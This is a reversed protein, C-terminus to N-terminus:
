RRRHDYSVMRELCQFLRRLHDLQERPSRHLHAQRIRDAFKTHHLREPTSFVMMQLVDRLWHWDLTPASLLRNTRDVTVIAANHAQLRGLIHALGLRVHREVQVRQPFVKCFDDERAARQELLRYIVHRDPMRLTMGSWNGERMAQHELSAAQIANIIMGYMRLEGVVEYLPLRRVFFEETTNTFGYLTAGIVMYADGPSARLARPKDSSTTLAPLRRTCPPPSHLPAALAPPCCSLSRLPCRTFWNNAQEASSSNFHWKGEETRLELWIYPNCHTGCVIDSQKHKCKFRFVDVPLAIGDFFQKNEESSNNLMSWLRCNQDHWLVQPLSQRTPFLGRWFLLVGNVAESGYFTARGLIVGCSAVCLEENHTRRRGFQARVKTNGDASKGECEISPDEHEHVDAAADDNPEYVLVNAEADLELNRLTIDTTSTKDQAASSSPTSTCLRELRSKLQFMAKNELKKFDELARHGATSCTAFGTEANQNCEVVACKNELAVHVMCYRAGKSNRLPEKCDHVACCPHGLTVGDTVVSHVARISGGADKSVWCCLDCAHNWLEQGPGALRANRAHLALALRDAQNTADHSVELVTGHEHHDLLLSYLLFGDWVWETTMDMNTAWQIPLLVDLESRRMSTNYFRACNTGSTWAVTMMNVFMECVDSAIYFHQALLIYSPPEAYYTRKTAEDHVFFNPHYRTRCQRCYLSTTRGPIPGLNRTFVTVPHSLPEVLSRERLRDGDMGYFQGCLPQRCTQFPPRFSFFVVDHPLGYELFLHILAEMRHEVESAKMGEHLRWAVERVADWMLKIIEDTLGLAAMLFNHINIPLSSPPVDASAVTVATIDDKLWFILDCFTMVEQITVSAALRPYTTLLRACQDLFSM